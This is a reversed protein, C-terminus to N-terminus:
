RLLTVDGVFKIEEDKHTAKILYTYVGVPLLENKYTGDWGYQADNAPFNNKAFVKSGWRDYITMEDVMLDRHSTNVFFMRNGEDMSITNPLYVQLETNKLVFLDLVSECGNVDVITIQYNLDDSLDEVLYELCDDCDIGPEWIVSDIDQPSLNTGLELLVSGGENITTNNQASELSIAEPESIMILTDFSCGNADELAFQYEGAALDSIIMETVLVDELFIQYESSSTLLDSILIEGTSEGNCVIDATLIDASPIERNDDVVVTKSVNCGFALDQIEVTYQGPEQANYIYEKSLTDNNENLWIAIFDEGQSSSSADLIAVQDECTISLDGEVEVSAQCSNCAPPTVLLAQKCGSIADIANLTITDLLPIDTILYQGQGMDNVTHASSLNLDIAEGTVSIEYRDSSICSAAYEVDLSAVENLELEVQSRCGQADEITYTHLGAQVEGLDYTTNMDLDADIEDIRYPGNGGSWSLSATHVEGTCLDVPRMREFALECERKIHVSVGKEGCYTSVTISLGILSDLMDKEGLVYNPRPSTPNSFQGDGTTSWEISSTGPIFAELDITSERPTLVITDMVEIEIEALVNTTTENSELIDEGDNIYTQFGQLTATSSAVVETDTHGVYVDIQFTAETEADIQDIAFRAEQGGVSESSAISLGQKNYPKYLWEIPEPLIDTFQINYLPASSKNDIYYIYTMSHDSCITNHDVEKRFTVTPNGCEEEGNLLIDEDSTSAGDFDLYTQGSPGSLTVDQDGYYDDPAASVDYSLTLSVCCNAPIDYSSTQETSCGNTNVAAEALVFGAPALDEITVDYADVESINCVSITYQVIGECIPYLSVSSKLAQLTAFEDVCIKENDINNSYRNEAIDTVPLDFAPDTDGIDNLVTYLHTATEIPITTSFTESEGAPVSCPIIFTSILSAGYKSPDNHYFSVPTGTPISLQELSSVTFTVNVSEPYPCGPATYEDITIMGDRNFYVNSTTGSCNSYALSVALELPDLQLFDNGFYAMDPSTAAEVLLKRYNASGNVIGIGIDTIIIGSEKLEDAYAAASFAACGDFTFIIVKQASPRANAELYANGFQLASLIDTSGTFSRELNHYDSLLFDDGTMDIKIEAQGRGSWEAFALRSDEPGEGLNISKYFEEFYDKSQKYEEASIASSVLSLIIIDMPEACDDTDVSEDVLTIDISATQSNADYLFLSYEGPLLNAITEELNTINEIDRNTPGTISITYPAQGGSFAVSVSGNDQGFTSNQSSVELIDLSSGASVDLTINEIITEDGDETITINYIGSALGDISFIDEQSEGSGKKASNQEEWSYMLPVTEFNAITLDIRGNNADVCPPHTEYNISLGCISNLIEDVSVCGEANNYISLEGHQSSNILPILICCEALLDNTRISVKGNFTTLNSLGDISTLADNNQIGISGVVSTINSLGDLNTILNNYTINLSGDVSTLGALGDINDLARNFSITLYGALSTLNALGDIQALSENHQLNLTGSIATVNILGNVNTLSNNFQINLRGPISDLGTLGDVNEISRNHEVTLTGELVTLNNLADINDLVNNFRVNLTGLITTLSELGSLDELASNRNINLQGIISTLNSLGSLDNLSENGEISVNGDISTIKALANIETLSNNSNISMRGAVSSINTLGNINRLSSNYDITIRGAISTLKLLGDISLLSNNRNIELHGSISTLNQLGDIDPLTENGRISLTGPLSRVNILGAINNLAQNYHISIIGELFTLATLGDINTLSENNSITLTGKLSTVQSLADINLLSSNREIILRGDISTVNSLGELNSLGINNIDLYGDITTLKSFGDINAISPNNSLYLRGNISVLNSLGDIHTLKENNQISLNGNVSTLKSLGDINELMENNRLYLYGDISTVNALGDIQSLMPNNQISLNGNVATLKSLGDIHTLKENNQISMSGELSAVSSLGDIETLKDNNDITLRGDISTLLSLGDIDTLNENGDIAISGKLSTIQDLSNINQILANAVIRLTGDVSTVNSLGDVNALTENQEISINRPIRTINELGDINTLMPNSVIYLGGDLQTINALGDINKLGENNNIRLSGAISTVNLLSDIQELSANREITVYGRISNLNSLGNINKLSNCNRISLTGTISEINSLADINTIDNGEIRVYSTIQTISTDWGDVEAQTTLTQAALERSFCAILTLILLTTLNKKM